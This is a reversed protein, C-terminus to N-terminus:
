QHIGAFGRIRERRHQMGDVLLVPVADAGRKRLPNVDIVAREEAHRGRGDAHPFMNRPPLCKGPVEGGGLVDGARDDRRNVAGIHDRVRVNAGVMAHAANWTAVHPYDGTV